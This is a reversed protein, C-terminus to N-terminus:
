SVSPLVVCLSEERAVIRRPPRAFQRVQEITLEHGRLEKPTPIPVFTVSACYSLMHIPLVGVVHQDRIDGIGVHNHITATYDILGIERLYVVLAPHRSAVVAYPITQYRAHAVTM